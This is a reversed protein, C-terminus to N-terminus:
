DAALRSSDEHLQLKDSATVREARASPEIGAKMEDPAVDVRQDIAAGSRENGQVLERDVAVIDVGDQDRMKM